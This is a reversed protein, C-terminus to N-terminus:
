SDHYSHEAKNLREPYFTLQMRIHHKLVCYNVIVGLLRNIRRQAYIEENHVM